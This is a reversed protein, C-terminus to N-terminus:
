AWEPTNRFSQQVTLGIVKGLVFALQFISGGSCRFSKCLADGLYSLWSSPLQSVFDTSIKQYPQDEVAL